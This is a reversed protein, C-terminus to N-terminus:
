TCCADKRGPEGPQWTALLEAGTANDRWVFPQFHPVGPPASGGNVGVSLAHVGAATL